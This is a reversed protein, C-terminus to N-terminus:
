KSKKLIESSKLLKHGEFVTLIEIQNESIRYVIRYSKEFVEGIENLSFEPVVRGKYPYDKIKEARDILRNIFQVSREPNDRSIYQEIQILQHLSEKSWIVKL